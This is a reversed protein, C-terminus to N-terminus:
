TTAEKSENEPIVVEIEARREFMVGYETEHSVTWIRVLNQKLMETALGHAIQQAIVEQPPECFWRDKRCEHVVGLKTIGKKQVTFRPVKPIEMPTKGGLWHILKTKIPGIKPQMEVIM